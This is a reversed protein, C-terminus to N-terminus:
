SDIRRVPNSSAHLNAEMLQHPRGFHDRVPEVGKWGLQEFFHINNKQIHATFRNCGRKKVTKVAERVLLEGAGSARYGKQVALRGGVWDGNGTEAPYVRVTGIIHGDHKAVLHLANEDHDDVDTEHFINQEDVFISRRILFAKERETETRTPHCVLEEMPREHAPLASCAGCRVCGALSQRYSLGKKSLMRAVKGYIHRMMAPDPPICQDMQSGPIPRLPVLFPYVGMEALLESGYLISAPTEGLGALIFSSVQNPGFIHVAKEWTNQYHELGMAAKIPALKKLIEADFSEIHIGVTDIGADKLEQLKQGNRPPMFQAHIPLGTRRKIAKASETLISFEKGPPKATGTTLVMHRIGDSACAIAATEALHEPTKLCITNQNQLSLEIGCFRCRNQTNWYACTQLVTTALCDTGHLLAIKRCSIGDPTTEDYFHPRPVTQVPLIETDKRYLFLKNGRMKLSYPSRAVYPSSTPVNVAFGGIVLSGAEAPGAGGTRQLATVPIRVGPSQIETITSALSTM